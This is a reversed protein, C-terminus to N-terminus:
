DDSLTASLQLYLQTEAASSFDAELEDGYKYVNELNGLTHELQIGVWLSHATQGIKYLQLLNLYNRYFARAQLVDKKQLNISTMELSSRLQNSNLQLARSFANEAADIRELQLAALGLNEFAQPRAQYEADAVVQELQEYADEFRSNAFLFASYNNRAQSNKSNIRLARQFKEEALDVEGEQAYVLGWIAFVESNNNDLNEANALHRKTNALDNQELYGTALRIYNQLAQTDSKEVNFGGTTETICASLLNAVVLMGAICAVRARKLALTETSMQRNAAAQM